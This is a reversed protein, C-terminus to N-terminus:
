RRFVGHEEDDIIVIGERIVEDLIKSLKPRLHDDFAVVLDRGIFDRLQPRFLDDNRRARAGRFLGPNAVFDDSTKSGARREESNAEAVLAYAVNEAAIDDARTSEHM